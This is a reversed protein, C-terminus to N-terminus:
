HSNKSPTQSSTDSTDPIHITLTDGEIEATHGPKTPDFGVGGKRVVGPDSFIKLLDHSLEEITM